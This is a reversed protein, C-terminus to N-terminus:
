STLKSLLLWTYQKFNNKALEHNDLTLLYDKMYVVIGKFLISPEYVRAEDNLSDM